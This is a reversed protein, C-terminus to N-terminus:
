DWSCPILFRCLMSLSSISTNTALHWQLKKNEISNKSKKKKIKRLLLPRSFFSEKYIIVYGFVNNKTQHQLHNQYLSSLLCHLRICFKQKQKYFIFCPPFSHPFPAAFITNMLYHKIELASWELM